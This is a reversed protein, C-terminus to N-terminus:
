DGQSDHEGPWPLTGQSDNERCGSVGTPCAGQSVETRSEQIFRLSGSPQSKGTRNWAIVLVTTNKAFLHVPHIFLLHPFFTFKWGSKVKEWRAVWRGSLFAFHAIQLMTDQSSSRRTGSIGDAGASSKVGLGLLAKMKLIRSRWIILLNILM